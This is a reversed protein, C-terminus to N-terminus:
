EILLEFTVEVDTEGTGPCEGTKTGAQHRLTITLSTQGAIDGTTWSSVLGLPLGNEDEDEYEVSLHQGAEFCFLHDEAEGAIEESISVAPNETENELAIIAAYTTSPELPGSVTIVPAISGQEGDEDYFRLSVADGGGEPALTVTLTTIVEAEHVPKPDDTDCGVFFFVPAVVVFLVFLCSTIRHVSFFNRTQM